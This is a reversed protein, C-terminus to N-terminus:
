ISINMNRVNITQYYAQIPLKYIPLRFTWPTKYVKFMWCANLPWQHVHLYPTRHGGLFSSEMFNHCTSLRSSNTNPRWHPPESVLHLSVCYLGFRHLWFSSQSLSLSGNAPYAALLRWEKRNPQCDWRLWWSLAMPPQQLAKSILTFDLNGWMQMDRPAQLIQHDEVEFRHQWLSCPCWYVLPFFKPCASSNRTEM